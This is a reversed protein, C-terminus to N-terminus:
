AVERAGLQFRNGPSQGTEAAARPHDEAQSEAPVDGPLEQLAVTEDPSESDGADGRLLQRLPDLATLPRQDDVEPVGVVHGCIPESNGAREVHRRLLELPAM